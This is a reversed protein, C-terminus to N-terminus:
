LRVCGTATSGAPPSFVSGLFGRVELADFPSVCAEDIEEPTSVGANVGPLFRPVVSCTHPPPGWRFTPAPPGGPGTLTV